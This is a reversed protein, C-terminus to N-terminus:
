EASLRPVKVAAFFAAACGSDEAVSLRLESAIVHRALDKLFSTISGDLERLHLVELHATRASPLLAVLERM